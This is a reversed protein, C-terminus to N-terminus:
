ALFGQRGEDSEDRDLLVEVPVTPLFLCRLLWGCLINNGTLGNMNIQTWGLAHATRHNESGKKQVLWACAVESDDALYSPHVWLAYMRPAAPTSRSTCYHLLM